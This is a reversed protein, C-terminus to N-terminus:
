LEKRMRKALRVDAESKDRRCHEMVLQSDEFLGAIHAETPNLLTQLTGAPACGSSGCKCAAFGEVTWRVGRLALGRLRYHEPEEPHRLCAIRKKHVAFHPPQM